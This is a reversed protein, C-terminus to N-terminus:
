RRLGNYREDEFLLNRQHVEAWSKTVLRADHRAARPDLTIEKACEVEDAVEILTALFRDFYKVSPLRVNPDSNSSALM